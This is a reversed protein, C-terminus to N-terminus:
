SKAEKKWKRIRAHANKYPSCTNLQIMRGLTYKEYWLRGYLEDESKQDILTVIESVVSDFKKLLEEYSLSAYDAYFKQALEGLESWKYGTEPFDVDHGVDREHVWKLVLEGWGTLYALLNHISMNTDKAHGELSSISSAKPSISAFDARVIRYSSQIAEALESKSKPIAM